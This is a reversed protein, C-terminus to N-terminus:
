HSLNKKQLPIIEDHVEPDDPDDIPTASSSM